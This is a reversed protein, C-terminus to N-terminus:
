SETKKIYVHLFFDELEIRTKEKWLVFNLEPFFVNGDAKFKMKSLIIEDAYKLGENYTQAGGIVFCKEFSKEKCFDISNNFSNFVRVGSQVNYCNQNTLVINTRGILPQELSEWTKRGMIVPYGITTEKFHRIEEASRWPIAGNKGIVNNQAVAAIIIIKM